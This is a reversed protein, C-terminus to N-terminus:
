EGDELGYIDKELKEELSKLAEAYQRELFTVTGVPYFADELFQEFREATGFLCLLVYETEGGPTECYKAFETM